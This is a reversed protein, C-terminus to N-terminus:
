QTRPKFESEDRHLPEQQPMTHAHAFGGNQAANKTEEHKALEALMRRMPSFTLLLSSLASVFCGNHAAHRTEEHKALEALM